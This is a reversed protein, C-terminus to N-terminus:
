PFIPHIAQAAGEFACAVTNRLWAPSCFFTSTSKRYLTSVSSPMETKISSGLRTGPVESDLFLMTSARLNAATPTGLANTNTHRKLMGAPEQLM